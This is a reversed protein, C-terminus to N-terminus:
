SGRQGCRATRRFIYDSGQRFGLSRFRANNYRVAGFMTIVVREGNL